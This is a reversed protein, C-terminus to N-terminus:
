LLSIKDHLKCLHKSGWWLSTASIDAFLVHKHHHRFPFPHQHHGPEEWCPPPVLVGRQPWYSRCVALDEESTDKVSHSSSSSSRFFLNQEEKDQINKTKTTVLCAPKDHDLIWLLAKPFELSFRRWRGKQSQPASWSHFDQEGIFFTMLHHFEEESSISNSAPPCKPFQVSLAIPGPWTLNLLQGIEGWIATLNWRPCARCEFNRIQM